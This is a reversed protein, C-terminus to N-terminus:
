PDPKRIRQPLRSEERALGAPDWRADV